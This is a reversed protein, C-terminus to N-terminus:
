GATLRFIMIIRIVTIDYILHDSAPKHGRISPNREEDEIYHM